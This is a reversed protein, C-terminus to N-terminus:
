DNYVEGLHHQAFGASSTMGKGGIGTVIHINNYITKQFVGSPHDTQCYVGYWSAEIEWSPLDFIRQGASLFYQNIEHRLDFNLHDQESAKAYEHSDGLIVGGDAEQKFLIHVGWQKWFSDDAERAKTAEWSPCQAFAEYRRISLGTLINGPLETAQPKLRLMQLKVSVLDSAMFLEPYLTQFEAGCCLVAKAAHFTRGDTTTASVQDHRSTLDRVCTEFHSQFDPQETLYGHMRHIMARPNVSIEEPFFLGGQCYDARLQPYRDRCQSATWLQSPYDTDANIAALEEILALEEEDSALYISGQPRVSIDFQSQIDKYIRLSERGFQQWRQDMGSPVVQGFNRVTAGQPARHRELLIVRLGRQQAHYAHFAGLVGGGIVLLDAHNEVTM